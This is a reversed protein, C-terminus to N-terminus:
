SVRSLFPSGKWMFLSNIMILEEELLPSLYRGQYFKDLMWIFFQWNWILEMKFIQEIEGRLLNEASLLESALNSIDYTASNFASPFLFPFSISVCYSYRLFMCMFNVTLKMLLIWRNWFHNLKIYKIHNAHIYIHTGHAYGCPDPLFCIKHFYVSNVALHTSLVLSLDESLTACRRKVASGDRIVLFKSYYIENFLKKYSYLVLKIASIIM